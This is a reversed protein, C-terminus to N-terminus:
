APKYIWLTEIARSCAVYLENNTMEKDIVVVKEFELGKVKDIPIINYYNRLIRGERNYNSVNMDNDYLELDDIVKENKVIIAGRDNETLQPLGYDKIEIVNGPLGIKYMDMGFRKNVYGTIEHANRYNERLQYINDFDIIEEVQKHGTIGGPRICQNEDGYLNFVANSFYHRITKIEDASYDQFEDIFVFRRNENAIHYRKLLMVFLSYLQDKNVTIIQKERNRAIGLYRIMMDFVYDDNQDASELIKLEALIDNYARFLIFPNISNKTCEREIVSVFRTVETFRSEIELNNIRTQQTNEIEGHGFDIALTLAERKKDLLKLHAVRKEIEAIYDEVEGYSLHRLEDICEKISEENQEGALLGIMQMFRTIKNAKQTSHMQANDFDIRDIYPIIKALRRRTRELNNQENRRSGEKYCDLLYLFALLRNELTSLEKGVRDEFIKIIAKIQDKSLGNLEDLSQKYLANATQIKAHDGILNEYERQEEKLISKTKEIYSNRILENGELIRECEKLRDECVTGPCERIDIEKVRNFYPIRSYIEKIIFLYFESTSFQNVNEINLIISLEKSERGLIDTPSVILISKLDITPNNFLLYRIRHLMIMTKGSGACGLVLTNENKDQTIIEYQKTQISEVIDHIQKSSRNREIIEILKEDVISNTLGDKSNSSKIHRNYLDEYDYFVGQDLIIDRVYNIGLEQNIVYVKYEYYLAAKKDAWDVVYGPIEKKGIYLKPNDKYNIHAFYAEEALRKVEDNAQMTIQLEDDDDIVREALFGGSDIYTFVRRKSQYKERLQSRFMEPYTKYIYHRVLSNYQGELRYDDSKENEDLLFLRCFVEIPASTNTHKAAADMSYYVRDGVLGDIRGRTGNKIHRIRFGPQIQKKDSITTKRKGSANLGNRDFGEQDYGLRNFGDKDYGEKNYGSLDYGEKNFGKRNFGSSDYGEKDYGSKDFGKRNFGNKDYGYLDFGEKDFGNIDLGNINFGNKDFGQSNLGTYLSFGDEDFDDKHFGDKNFGESNFGQIDYGELDFGEKNRGWIDFEDKDYGSKDFGYKDYGAKDYGQRDYGGRNFGFENYGEKDFGNRDFGLRNYGQKNYGDKNFGTKDFGYQDFGDRNFGDKDFGKCNFGNIDYGTQDYGHIDYGNIDYGEFNYGDKNFGRRNFGFRDFGDKNYGDQSYGNLDYGNRDYGNIDYGNHDYGENDYGNRDYGNKDYGLSNYGERDYGERNRGSIKHFGDKSYGRKDYGEKDFGERNYGFKDYGERNYGNPDFGNKDYFTNSM